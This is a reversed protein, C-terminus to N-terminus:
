PCTGLSSLDVAGVGATTISIELTHIPGDGAESEIELANNAGVSLAGLTSSAPGFDTASNCSKRVTIASIAVTPNRLVVRWNPARRLTVLLVTTGNALAQTALAKSVIPTPLSM